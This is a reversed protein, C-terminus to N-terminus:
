RRKAGHEGRVGEHRSHAATCLLMVGAQASICGVFQAGAVYLWLGANDPRSREYEKDIYVDNIICISNQSTYTVEKTVCKYRKDHVRKTWVYLGQSVVVLDGVNM